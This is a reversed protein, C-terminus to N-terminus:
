VDTGCVPRSVCAPQLVYVRELVLLVVASLVYVHCMVVDWLRRQRRQRQRRQRRQRQQWQEDHRQQAAAAEAAVAAPRQRQQWDSTTTALPPLRRGFM